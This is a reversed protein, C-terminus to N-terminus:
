RGDPSTDEPLTDQVPTQEMLKWLSLGLDEINMWLSSLVLFLANEWLSPWSDTGLTLCILTILRIM